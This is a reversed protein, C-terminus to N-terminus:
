DCRLASLPDVAVARQAPRLSAGLSAVAIVMMAGLYATLDYPQIAEVHHAFIPAVLLALTAGIASGITVLRMCQWVVMRVLAGNGAGLAMRIGIEKTRQSVLYSLVGFIGSVTLLIALAGLFGAIWFAIRFPYIMTQHIEDLPNIQDALEPSIQDLAAQIDRRGVAKGRAASVMLTQQQAGAFTPFYLCSPDVGVAGFGSIVDGVVGIVHASRFPPLRDSRRDIQRKSPIAITKGLPDEGPWFRRASAESIMVVGAGAQAEAATFPRGRLVPIRLMPFYDPSVFNYGALLETNAGSPIVALKVLESELPAHWVAAVSEIGSSARLRDVGTTTLGKSLLLDFVGATRIRIDQSTVRREGRLAVASCILLLVCVAVQSAVLFNRLRSPRYDSSFDGRNAEVLRSRTTQLAPTLGFLLAACVAAALIFACVRWDTQLSPIKVIWVFAPPLTHFLLWIGCRLTGWSIAIGAAAAPFALLLSETLLQRVLRARGAGLSVRIAIERQRALARALMMNSVNACAIALVLGFAAFLPALSALMSPSYEIPTARSVIRARAARRGTPLTSTEAQAWALLASQAAEPTVGPRLRGLLRLSPQPEASASPANAKAWFDRMVDGVGTFGSSAVGVVEVTGGRLRLKRGVIEPDAGFSNRWTDYALVVVQADDRQILRGLHAGPALLAFYNSSVTEGVAPRGDLPAYLNDYAAVDTFVNNERRLAQFQSWTARWTGDKSEWWFEYLNHPDSVAITRFVYTNFVTFLTTNIGLGLGITGIVTLAFGPARRIGRWAYRIDQAFSDLWAFGWAERSKELALAESGFFRGEGGAARYDREMDRHIRIEDALDSEFQRRGIWRRLRSWLRM